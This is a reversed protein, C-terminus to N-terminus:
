IWLNRIKKKVDAIEKISELYLIFEDETKKEGKVNIHFVFNQVYYKIYKNGFTLGKAVIEIDQMPLCGFFCEENYINMLEYYDVIIGDYLEQNLVYGNYKSLLTQVLLSYQDGCSLDYFYNPFRKDVM